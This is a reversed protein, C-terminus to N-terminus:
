DLPFDVDLYDKKYDRLSYLGGGISYAVALIAGRVYNTGGCLYVVALTLLIRGVMGVCFNFLHERIYKKLHFRRKEKATFGSTDMSM